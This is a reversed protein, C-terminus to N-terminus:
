APANVHGAVVQHRHAHVRALLDGVREAVGHGAGRVRRQQVPPHQPHLRPLHCALQLHPRRLPSPAPPHHPQARLAGEHQAGGVGAGGRAERQRGDARPREVRARPRRSVQCREQPLVPHHPALPHPQHHLAGLPAEHGAGVEGELVAAEAREGAGDVLRVALVLDRVRHEVGHAVLQQLALPVRLQLTALPAAERRAGDALAVDGHVGPRGAEWVRMKCARGCGVGCGGASM